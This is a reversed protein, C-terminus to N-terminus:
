MFTHYSVVFDGYDSYVHSIRAACQAKEAPSLSEDLDRADKLNAM